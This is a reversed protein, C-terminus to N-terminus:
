PSKNWFVSKKRMGMLMKPSSWEGLYSLQSAAAPVTKYKLVLLSLPISDLTLRPNSHHTEVSFYAVVVV